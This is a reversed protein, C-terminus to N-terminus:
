GVEGEAKAGSETVEVDREADRVLGAFFAAPPLGLAVLGYGGAIQTDLIAAVAEVLLM